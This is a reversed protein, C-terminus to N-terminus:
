DQGSIEKQISAAQKVMQQLASLMEDKYSEINELQSQLMEITQELTKETVVGGGVNVKLMKTDKIVAEAFVGNAVPVLIEQGSKVDKLELLGAVVANIEFIQQELVMMQQETQKIQQDLMQLALLSEKRKEDDKKEM